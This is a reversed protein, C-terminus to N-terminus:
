CFFCVRVHLARLERWSSSLNSLVTATLGVQVQPDQWPSQMSGPDVGNPLFAYLDLSASQASLTAVGRVPPLRQDGLRGGDATLRACADALGNGARQWHLAGIACMYM